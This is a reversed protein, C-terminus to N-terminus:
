SGGTQEELKKVEARFQEGRDQYNKFLNFSSSAPSMLCIKGKSTNKAANWVADKMNKVFFHKPVYGKQKKIGNLIIKGTTPFLILTQIKEEVIKKSLQGFDIGRDYGGAILTSVNPRLTELAAITAEPITAISDDYFNIGDFNGIYELRHAIPEFTKVSYTISQNSVKFLKACAVAALINNLNFKGKLKTESIKLVKERSFLLWKDKIYAASQLKGEFSFPIKSAKYENVLKDVIESDANYIVIDKKSQYKLINSKAKKYNEFGGHYNLHEKYLNLFVAIHPSIKLDQLQFSSLEYVFIDDKTIKGMIDFPPYGVNGVLHVKLNADKLIKYILSATTTKGKTGTVGIAKGRYLNLFIETQSTVQSSTPQTIQVGPSKFIVDFKNLNRQYNGGLYLELKKDNAILNRIGKDLENSKKQDAIGILKEPYKARLYKLTSTGETGLGLILIKKDALDEIKM